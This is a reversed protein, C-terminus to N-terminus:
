RCIWLNVYPAEVDIREHRSLAKTVVCEVAFRASM